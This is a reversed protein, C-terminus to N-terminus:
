LACVAFAERSASKIVKEKARSTPFGNIPDVIGYTNPKNKYVVIVHSEAYTLEDAAVIFYGADLWRNWERKSHKSIKITRLGAKKFGAKLNRWTTGDSTTQCLVSAKKESYIKYLFASACVRLTTPGCTHDTWQRMFLYRM